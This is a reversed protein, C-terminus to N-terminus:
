LNDQICRSNATRTLASGSGSKVCASVRDDKWLLTHTSQRWFRMTRYGQQFQWGCSATLCAIARPEAWTGATLIEPVFPLHLGNEWGSIAFPLPFFVELYWIKYENNLLDSAQGSGTLKM